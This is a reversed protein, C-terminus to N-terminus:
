PQTGQQGVEMSKGATLSVNPKYDFYEITLDTTGFFRADTESETTLPFWFAGSKQYMHVFHVSRTWFSLNKAPNGEARILAYDEADVWIRGRFLYREHRKPTVDIVYAIRGSIKQKGVMQFEYNAASVRTKSQEEPQSTKTEWELMKQLVHKQAANWGNEAVIEFHKTGDSDGSVHVIMEARKHVHNNALIYRRTGAYGELWSQRQADRAIMTFIVDNVPPLTNDKPSAFVGANLVLALSTVLFQNRIASSWVV